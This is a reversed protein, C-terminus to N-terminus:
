LLGARSMSFVANGGVILHDRVVIGLLKADRVVRRTSALDDASPQAIGSPHNHALVIEVAGLAVARRFLQAPSFEMRHSPGAAVTEHDIFQGGANGFLALMEEHQLGCFHAVVFQLLSPSASDLPGRTVQERLGAHLLRRVAAIQGPLTSGPGFM